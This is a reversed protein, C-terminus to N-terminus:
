YDEGSIDFVIFGEHEYHEVEPDDLDDVDEEFADLDNIDYYPEDIYLRAQDINKSKDMVEEAYLYSYVHLIPDGEEDVEDFLNYLKTGM